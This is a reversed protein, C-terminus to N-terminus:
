ITPMRTSTGGTSDPKRVPQASAAPRLASSITRIPPEARQQRAVGQASLASREIRPAAALSQTSIPLVATLKANSFPMEIRPRAADACWM